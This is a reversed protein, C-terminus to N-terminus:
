QTVAAIWIPRKSFKVFLVSLGLFGSGFTLWGLDPSGEGVFISDRFLVLVSKFGVADSSGKFRTVGKTAFQHM